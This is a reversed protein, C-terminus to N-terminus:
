HVGGFQLEQVGWYMLLSSPWVPCRIQSFNQQRRRPRTQGSRYLDEEQRLQEEIAREVEGQGSLYPDPERSHQSETQRRAQSKRGETKM